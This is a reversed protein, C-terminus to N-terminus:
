KTVLRAVFPHIEPYTRTAGFMLLANKSMFNRQDELLLSEEDDAMADQLAPNPAGRTVGFAEVVKNAFKRQSLIVKRHVRDM